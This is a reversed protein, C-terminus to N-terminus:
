RWEAWLNAFRPRALFGLGLTTGPMNDNLFQQLLLTTKSDWRGYKYPVGWGEGTLEVQDLKNIQQSTLRIYLLWVNHSPELKSRAIFFICFLFSMNHLPTFNVKTGIDHLYKRLAKTTSHTWLNSHRQRYSSTPHQMNYLYENMASKTGSDLSSLLRLTLPELTFYGIIGARQRIVIPARHDYFSKYPRSRGKVSYEM